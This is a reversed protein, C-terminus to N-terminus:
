VKDVILQPYGDVLMPMAKDQWTDTKDIGPHVRKISKMLMVALKQSKLLTAYETVNMLEQDTLNKGKKFSAIAQLGTTCVDQAEKALNPCKKPDTYAYELDKPNMKKLLDLYASYQNAAAIGVSGAVIDIIRESNWPEKYKVSAALGVKLADSALEWQRPSPYIVPKGQTTDYEDPDFKHFYDSKFNLFGIIEEIVRQEGTDVDQQGAWSEWDELTPAYNYQRFRNGLTPNWNFTRDDDGGDGQRNAAAIILWKDGLIFQNIRRDADCLKMIVAQVSPKCRAIEDFFIIGGKGDPGNALKNGEEESMKSSDYVPLWDVIMRTSRGPASESKGPLMFDAETATALDQVVLRNNHLSFDYKKAMMNIIATKGIGPAGWILLPPQKKGSQTADVANRIERAFGDSLLNRVDGPHKLEVRAEDLEVSEPFHNSETVSGVTQLEEVNPASAGGENSMIKLDTRNPYITVSEPIRGKDQNIVSNMFYSGIGSFFEGVKKLASVVAEKARALMDGLGEEIKSEHLQSRFESFSKVPKM